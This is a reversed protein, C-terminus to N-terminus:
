ARILRFHTETANIIFFICNISPLFGVISLHWLITYDGKFIIIFSSLYRLRKIGNMAYFTWKISAVLFLFDFKKSLLNNREVVKGIRHFFTIVVLKRIGKLLANSPDFLCIRVDYYRDYGEWLKDDFCEYCTEYCETKLLFSDFAQLGDDVIYSKLSFELLSKM